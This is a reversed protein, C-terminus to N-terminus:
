RLTRGLKECGKLDRKIDSVAQGLDDVNEIRGDRQVHLDGFRQAADIACDDLGVVEIRVVVYVVLGLNCCLWKIQRPCCKSAVARKGPIHGLEADSDQLEIQLTPHAGPRKQFAAFPSSYISSNVCTM